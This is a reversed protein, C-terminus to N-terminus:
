LFRSRHARRGMRRAPFLISQRMQGISASTPLHACAGDSNRTDSSFIPDSGYGDVAKSVNDSHSYHQALGSLHDDLQDPFMSELAKGAREHLLKRREILLWSYAVERTLVHKFIYETDALAPQEYIFEAERLEALM